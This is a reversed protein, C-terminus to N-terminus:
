QLHDYSLGIEATLRLHTGIRRLQGGGGGGGERGGGLSKLATKAGGKEKSNAAGSQVEERWFYFCACM